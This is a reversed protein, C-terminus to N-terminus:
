KTRRESCMDALIIFSQLVAIVCCCIYSFLTCEKTVAAIVINVMLSLAVFMQCIIQIINKKNKM